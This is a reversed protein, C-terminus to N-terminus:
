VSTLAAILVPDGTQEPHARIDAEAAGIEYWIANDAGLALAHAVDGANVGSLAAIAQNVLPDNALRLADGLEPVMANVLGPGMHDRLFSTAATPEGKLIAVANEIGITRVADAVLPAARRAGAEAVNNLRHQLKERFPGSTLISQVIGGRAGFLVPLDIRAVASNWFGDASTLRAFANSSAAGLLRRVADVLSYGGGISACGPLALVVAAIGGALVGRRGIRAGAIEEM